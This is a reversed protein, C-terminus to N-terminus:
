RGTIRGLLKGTTRLLTRLSFGQTITVGAPTRHAGSPELGQRASYNLFGYGGFVSGQPADFRMDAEVKASGEYIGFPVCVSELM